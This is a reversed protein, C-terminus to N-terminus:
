GEKRVLNETLVTALDVIEIPYRNGAAEEGKDKQLCKLHIQCKPCPTVLVEAGTAVADKMRRRRIEKNEDDCSVFQPVGCCLAEERCREMERVEYGLSQLLERPPDYIGMFRGLRCSDHFTVAKPAGKGKLKERNELLVQSLHKVNLEIGIAKYEVALTRYCEPCGTVITKFRSLKEANQQALIRFEETQGRWFQDHGCCKEGELVAPAIGVANLLRIGNDAIGMGEFGVDEKFLIDFYPACGMFFLVDGGADLELDEALFQRRKPVLHPSKMLGYLATLDEHAFPCAKGERCIEGRAERVLDLLKVGMPCIQTCLGCTLCDWPDSGELLRSFRGAATQYVLRRPLFGPKVRAKPCVGSCLACQYCPSALGTRESETWEVIEAAM